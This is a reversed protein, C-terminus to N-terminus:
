FRYFPAVPNVRGAPSEVEAVDDPGISDSSNLDGFAVGNTEYMPPASGGPVVPNDPYAALSSVAVEGVDTKLATERTSDVTIEYIQPQGTSGAVVLDHEGTWDVASLATRSTHVRRPPHVTVTGEEVTVAAVYLKGGAIFAIRHGDLAVAVAAVRGAVNTNVPDLQADAGFRYLAGDAVVLGVPRDPDASRLWVPRKISTFSARSTSGAAISPPGVFTRLVQRRGESGVVAVLANQDTGSIAAAVVNQNHRPFIPVGAGPVAPKLLHVAGNYVVYRQPPGGLQYVPHEKLYVDTDDIMKRTQNRIKLELQGDVDPLSWALQTALRDLQAPEETPGSLNIELRGDTKPVTGILETRDPLRAVTPALWESPGDILWGVVETARRGVPVAVPLYRQDPVLATQKTNWFYITHPQYYTRLADVSLLLGKPANLVFLNDLRGSEVPGVLFEYRSETAVPPGLTGDARLVGVQDVDIAFRKAEGGQVPTPNLEKKLRVVNIVVESGQKEPLQGRVNEALYEKVRAYAQDPEGAAAALFNTMLQLASGASARKPPELGQGNVSGAEAVPGPGDVQVETAEPIGCGTVVGAALLGAALLVIRRRM